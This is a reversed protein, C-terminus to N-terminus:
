RRLQVYSIPTLPIPCSNDEAFTKKLLTKIQLASYAM